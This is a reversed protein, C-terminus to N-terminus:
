LVISTLVSYQCDGTRIVIVGAAASLGAQVRM